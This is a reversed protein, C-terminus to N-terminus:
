MDKLQADIAHQLNHIWSNYNPHIVSGNYNLAVSDKYVISYHRASYPVNVVATHTRILLTGIMADPGNDKFQWGLEGGARIIAKRVDEKSANPGNAAVADNVNYVPMGVRCAGLLLVLLAIAIAKCKM